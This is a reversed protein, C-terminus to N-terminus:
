FAMAFLVLRESVLSGMEKEMCKAIFLNSPVCANVWAFIPLYVCNSLFPQQIVM